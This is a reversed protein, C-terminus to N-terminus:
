RLSYIPDINKGTSDEHHVHTAESPPNTPKPPLITAKKEDGMFYSVGRSALNRLLMTVLFIAISAGGKALLRPLPGYLPAPGPAVVFKSQSIPANPDLGVHYNLPDFKVRKPPPEAFSDGQNIVARRRDRAEKKLQKPDLVRPAPQEQSWSEEESGREEMSDEEMEEESPDSDAFRVRSVSSRPRKLISKPPATSPQSYNLDGVGRADPAVPSLGVSPTMFPNIINSPPTFTPAFFSSATPRIPGPDATLLPQSVSAPEPKPAAPKKQRGIALNRRAIEARKERTTTEM